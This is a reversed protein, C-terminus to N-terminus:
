TLSHQITAKHAKNIFGPPTVKQKFINTLKGRLRPRGLGILVRRVAQDGTSVLFESVFELALAEAEATLGVAAV